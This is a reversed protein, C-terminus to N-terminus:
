MTLKLSAQAIHSKTGVFIFLLFFFVSDTESHPSGYLPCLGCAVTCLHERSQVDRPFDGPGQDLPFPGQAANAVSFAEDLDLDLTLCLHLTLLPPAM